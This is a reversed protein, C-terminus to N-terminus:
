EQVPTLTLEPPEYDTKFDATVRTLSAEPTAM